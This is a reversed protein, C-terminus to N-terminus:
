HKLLERALAMFYPRSPKLGAALDDPWKLFYEPFKFKPLKESMVDKLTSHDIERGEAMRIFAAPRDGWQMSRVPVVLVDEVGPCQRIVSEIEEPHINEGGSIFMNDKRGILNLYGDKDLTGMDGTAFWGEADFPTELGSQTVYGLFRTKGRVQIEGSPSIRLERHTLVRGSTALKETTEKARTTTVQSAMESLGYSTFIPLDLRLSREVLDSPLASGGILVAKLEPLREEGNELETVLRRLQTPVLSLHTIKYRKCSQLLSEAQPPIVMAGGGAMSRFLIGLGGVHHLPLSLLWRDGSEFPINENSGLANYWFNGVTLMVGKAYGTSGSTTVIAAEREYQLPEEISHEVLNEFLSAGEIAKQRPFSASFESGGLVFTCGFTDAYERQVAIPLKPNLPLFVVEARLMGFILLVTERSISAPIAVRDGCKVGASSLNRAISAAHRNIEQPSLESEPDILQVVHDDM